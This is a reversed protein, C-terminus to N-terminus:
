GFVAFFLLFFKAFDLGNIFDPTFIRALVGFLLGGGWFQSGLKGRTKLLDRSNERLKKAELYHHFKM